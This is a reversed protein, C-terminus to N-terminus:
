RLTESAHEFLTPPSRVRVEYPHFHSTGIMTIHRKPSGMGPIRIYNNDLMWAVIVLVPFQVTTTPRSPTLLHSHTLTLSLSHSHTLIPPIPQTGGMRHTIQDATGCQATLHLQHRRILDLERGRVMGFTIAAEVITVVNPTWIMLIIVLWVYAFVSTFATCAYVSM